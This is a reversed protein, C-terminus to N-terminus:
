CIQPLGFMRPLTFINILVALAVGTRLAWAVLGEKNENLLWLLVIVGLSILFVLSLMKSDAGVFPSILGCIGQVMQGVVDGGLPAAYGFSLM